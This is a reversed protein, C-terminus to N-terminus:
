VRAVDEAMIRLRTPQAFFGECVHGPEPHLEFAVRCLRVVTELRPVIEKRSLETLSDEGNRRRIVVLHDHIGAFRRRLAVAILEPDLRLTVGQEVHESVFGIRGQKDPAGDVVREETCQVVVAPM